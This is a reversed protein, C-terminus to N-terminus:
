GAALRRLQTEALAAVQVLRRRHDAPLDPLRLLHLCHEVVKRESETLFSRVSPPLQEYRAPDAPHLTQISPDSMIPGATPGTRDAIGAVAGPPHSM